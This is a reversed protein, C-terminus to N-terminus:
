DHCIRYYDGEKKCRNAHDFTCRTISLLNGFQKWVKNCVRAGGVWTLVRLDNIPVYVDFKIYEGKHNIYYRQGRKDCFTVFTAKPTEKTTKKTEM